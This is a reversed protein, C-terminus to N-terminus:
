STEFRFCLTLSIKKNSFPLSAFQRLSWFYRNYDFIVSKKSSRSGFFFIHPKNKTPLIQWSVIFAFRTQGFLVQTFPDFLPCRILRSPTLRFLRRDFVKANNLRLVRTFSFFFIAASEFHTIRCVCVITVHKSNHFVGVFDSDRGFLFHGVVNFLTLHYVFDCFLHGCVLSVRFSRSFSFQPCYFELQYRKSFCDSSCIQKM